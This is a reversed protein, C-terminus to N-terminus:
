SLGYKKRIRKMVQDHPIVKGENAQQLGLLIGEREQESLSNWQSEDVERQVINRLDGYLHNLQSRGLSEIQRHLEKKLDQTKMYSKQSYLVGTGCVYALSRMAWLLFRSYSAIPCPALHSATYGGGREANMQLIQPVFCGGITRIPPSVVHLPM